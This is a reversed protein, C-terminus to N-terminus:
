ASNVIILDIGKEDPSLTFIALNKLNIDYKNFPGSKLTGPKGSAPLQMPM